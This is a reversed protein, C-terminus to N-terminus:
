LDTKKIIATIVEDFEIAVEALHKCIEDKEETTKSHNLLLDTLGMIKALPARVVHSQMYSIESLKKNQDEIIQIHKAQQEVLKKLAFKSEGISQEKLKTETIDLCAGIMKQPKGDLDTMVCGWSKLYRIEGNPRIIREEFIVDEKTDLASKIISSVRAKDDPHLMKQYGEFTAAFQVQSLGYIKFLTDSWSVTNTNIDWVWNGFSALEQAQKMLFLAEQISNPFPELNELDLNSTPLPETM